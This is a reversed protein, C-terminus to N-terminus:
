RRAQSPRELKGRATRSQVVIGVAALVSALIVRHLPVLDLAGVIMGVGALTSLVIIAWDMVLAAVVAGIVGGVLTLAFDPLPWGLSQAIVIALYSGAYFGALAFALRQFFVAVVAGVIGAAAGLVWVIWDSQSALLERAVEAGVVFGIIAIFLWFLRRGALLLLLGAVIEVIQPM